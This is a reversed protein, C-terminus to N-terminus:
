GLRRLLKGSQATAKLYQEKVAVERNHKDIAHSTSRLGGRLRKDVKHINQWFCAVKLRKENETM